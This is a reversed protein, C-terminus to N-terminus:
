RTKITVTYLELAHHHSSLHAFLKYKPQRYGYEGANGVYFDADGLQDFTGIILSDTHIVDVFSADYKDLRADPSIDREFWLKKTFLLGVPDLGSIRDMILSLKKMSKGAFGCVHAGLSM